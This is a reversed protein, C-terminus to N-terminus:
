LKSKQRLLLFNTVIRKLKALQKKTFYKSTQISCQYDSSDDGSCRSQSGSSRSRGSRSGSSSRSADDDSGSSCCSCSSACSRSSGSQSRSQQSSHSESESRRRRNRRGRRRRDRGMPRDSDPEDMRYEGEEDDASEVEDAQEDVDGDGYASESPPRQLRQMDSQTGSRMSDLIAFEQLFQRKQHEIEQLSDMQSTHPADTGSFQDTYSEGAAFQRAFNSINRRKVPHAPAGPLVLENHGLTAFRRRQPRAEPLKGLVLDSLLVKDSLEEQAAQDDESDGDSETKLRGERLHDRWAVFVRFMDTLRRKSLMMALRDATDLPSRLEEHEENIMIMAPESTLQRELERRHAERQQSSNQDHNSATSRFYAAFRNSSFESAGVM